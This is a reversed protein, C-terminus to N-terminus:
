QLYKPQLADEYVKGIRYLDSILLDYVENLASITNSVYALRVVNSSMKDVLLKEETGGKKLNQDVSAKQAIKAQEAVANNLSTIVSKINKLTKMDFYKGVDEAYLFCKGIHQKSFGLDYPSGSKRKGQLKIISFKGNTTSVEMGVAKFIEQTDDYFKKFNKLNKADLKICMDHIPKIADCTELWLDIPLSEVKKEQLIEDDCLNILKTLKFHYFKSMWKVSILNNEATRLIFRFTKSAIVAASHYLSKAAEFLQTAAVVIGEMGPTFSIKDYSRSAQIYTRFSIDFGGSDGGSDGGISGGGSGSGTDGWQKGNPTQTPDADEIEDDIIAVDAADETGSTGCSPCGGSPEGAQTGYEMTLFRICMLEFPRMALLKEDSVGEAVEPTDENEDEDEDTDNAEEVQKVKSEDNNRERYETDDEKNITENEKIEKEAETIEKVKVSKAPTESFTQIVENEDQEIELLACLTSSKLM